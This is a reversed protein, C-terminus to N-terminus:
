VNLLIKLTHSCWFMTFPNNMEDEDEDDDEDDDEPEDGGICQWMRLTVCQLWRLFM